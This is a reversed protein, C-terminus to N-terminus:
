GSSLYGSAQNLIDPDILNILHPWPLFQQSSNLSTDVQLVRTKTVGDIRQQGQATLLHLSTEKPWCEVAHSTYCCLNHRVWQVCLYFRIRSRSTTTSGISSISYPFTYAMGASSRIPQRPSGPTLALQPPLCPCVSVFIVVTDPAVKCVQCTLFIFRLVQQLSNLDWCMQLVKNRPLRKGAERCIIESIRLM